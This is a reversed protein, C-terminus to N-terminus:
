EALWGGVWRATLLRRLGAQGLGGESQRARHANYSFGALSPGPALGLWTPLWLSDEALDGRGQSVPQQLAGQSSRSWTGCCTSHPVCEAPVSRLPSPMQRLLLLLLLTEPSRETPLPCYDGARRTTVESPSPCTATNGPRSGWDGADKGASCFPLGGHVHTQLSCSAALVQLIRAEGVRLQPETWVCGWPGGEQM